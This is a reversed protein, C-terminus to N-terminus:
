IKVLGISWMWKGEDNIISVNQVKLVCRSAWRPMHCASRWRTPLPIDQLFYHGDVLQAGVSECDEACQRWYREVQEETLAAYNGYIKTGDRLEVGFDQNDFNGCYFRWEERVWMTGSPRRVPVKHGRFMRTVNWWIEGSAPGFAGGCCVIDGIYSQLNGNEGVRLYITDAPVGPIVRQVQIEGGSAISETGLIISKMM